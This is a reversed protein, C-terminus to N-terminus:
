HDLGVEGFSDFPDGGVLGFLERGEVDFGELDRASAVLDPPEGRQPPQVAQVVAGRHGGAAGGDADAVPGPNPHFSNPAAVFSETLATHGGVPNGGLGERREILRCQYRELALRLGGVWDLDDDFTRALARNGIPM